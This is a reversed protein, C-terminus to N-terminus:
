CSGHKMVARYAHTMGSIYDCQSLVSDWLGPDTGHEYEMILEILTDVANLLPDISTDSMTYTIRYNNYFYNYGNVYDQLGRCKKM